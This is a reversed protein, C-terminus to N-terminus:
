RLGEEVKGHLEKLEEAQDRPMVLTADKTHVVILDKCGLCRWRTGRSWASWWNTGATRGARTKGGRCRPASATARSTRSSRDAGYSPWSGVDLWQLDMMCPACRSSGTRPRRHGAGDRAYDVSTKPLTPYVEDLVAQQRGTGWAEQIKKLGEHSEPKFEKLCEM